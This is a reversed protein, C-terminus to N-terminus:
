GGALPVVKIVRKRDVNVFGFSKAYIKKGKVYVGTGPSYEDTKALETGPSVWVYDTASKPFRTPKLSRKPKM